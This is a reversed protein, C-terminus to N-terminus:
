PCFFSNLGHHTQKLTPKLLRRFLSHIRQTEADKKQQKLCKFFEFPDFLNNTITEFQKLVNLEDYKYNLFILKRLETLQISTYCLLCEPLDVRNYSNREAM